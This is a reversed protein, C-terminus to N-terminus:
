HINIHPLDSKVDAWISLAKINLALPPKRNNRPNQQLVDSIEAVIKALSVNIGIFNYVSHAQMKRHRGQFECVKVM